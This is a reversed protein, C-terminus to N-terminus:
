KQVKSGAMLARLLKMLFLVGGVLLGLLGVLFTISAVGMAIGEYDRYQGMDFSLIMGFCGSLALVFSGFFIVIAQTWSPWAKRVLVPSGASSPASIQSPPPPAPVLPPPRPPDFESV